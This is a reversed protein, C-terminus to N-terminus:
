TTLLYKIFYVRRSDTIIEGQSNLHNRRNVAVFGLSRLAQGIKKDNYKQYTKNQLDILIESSMLVAHHDDESGPTYYKSLM